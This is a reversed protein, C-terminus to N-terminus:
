VGRARESAKNARPRKEGRSARARLRKAPVATRWGAPKFGSRFILKRTGNGDDATPTPELWTERIRVGARKVERCYFTNPLLARPQIPNPQFHPNDLKSRELRPGFCPISKLVNRPNRRCFNRAPFHSKHRQGLM